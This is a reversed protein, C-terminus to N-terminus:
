ATAQAKGNRSRAKFNDSGPPPYLDPRIRYRPVRTVREVDLVREAPVRGKEWKTVAADGVGLMEGLQAQTIGNAKRWTTIPSSTKNAM